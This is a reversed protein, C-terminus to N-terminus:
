PALGGRLFDLAVNSMLRVGIPLALDDGQFLPSHNVAGRSDVGTPTVALNFFM